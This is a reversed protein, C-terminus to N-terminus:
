GHVPCQWGAFTQKWGIRGMVTAIITDRSAPKSSAVDGAVFTSDCRVCKITTTEEVTEPLPTWNAPPTM